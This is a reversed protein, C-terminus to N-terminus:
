AVGRAAAEALRAMLLEEAADYSEESIEGAEVAQELRDLQQRIRAPDYLEAEAAETVKSTVWLAGSLPASVPATLLKRLLGM